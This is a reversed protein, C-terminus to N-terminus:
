FVHYPPFDRPQLWYLRLPKVTQVGAVPAQWVAFFSTPFHSTWTCKCIYMRQPVLPQPPCFTNCGKQFLLSPELESHLMQCSRTCVVKFPDTRATSKSSPQWTTKELAATRVRVSCFCSVLMCPKFSFSESLLISSWSPTGGYGVGKKWLKQDAPWKIEVAYYLRQLQILRKISRDTSAYVSLQKAILVLFFFFGQKKNGIWFVFMIKGRAEMRILVQKTQNQNQM